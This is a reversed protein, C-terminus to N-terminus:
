EDAFVEVVYRAHSAAGVAASAVVLPTEVPPEIRTSPGLVAHETETVGAACRRDGKGDSSLTEALLAARMPLTDAAVPASTVLQSDTTDLLVRASGLWSPGGLKGKSGAQGAMVGAAVAVIAGLAVIM